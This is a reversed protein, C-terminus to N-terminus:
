NSKKGAIFSEVGAVMELRHDGARLGAALALTPLIPHYSKGLSDSHLLLRRGIAVQADAMIQKRRHEHAAKRSPM